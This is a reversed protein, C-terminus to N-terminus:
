DNLIKVLKNVVKQLQIICERNSVVNNFDTMTVDLAHAIGIANEVEQVKKDKM